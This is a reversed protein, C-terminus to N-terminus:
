TPFSIPRRGIPIKRVDQVTPAVQELRFAGAKPDFHVIRMILDKRPYCEKTKARGTQRKDRVAVIVRVIGDCNAVAWAMDEFFFRSGNGEHWDGLGQRAYVMHGARGKFEDLWLTLVVTKGEASVASWSWNPNRPDTNYFRFCATRTWRNSM